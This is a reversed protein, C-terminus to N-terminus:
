KLLRGHRQRQWILMKASIVKSKVQRFNLANIVLHYAVIDICVVHKLAILTLL